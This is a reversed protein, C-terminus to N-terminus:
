LNNIGCQAVIVVFAGIYVVIMHVLVRVVYVGSIVYNHEWVKVVFEGVDMTLKKM